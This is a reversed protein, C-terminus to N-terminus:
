ASNDYNAKQHTARSVRFRMIAPMIKVANTRRMTPPVVDVRDSTTVVMAVFLKTAFQKVATVRNLSVSAGSITTIVALPM